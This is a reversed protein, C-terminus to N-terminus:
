GSGARVQRRPGDKQGRGDAYFPTPVQHRASGAAARGHRAAPDHRPNGRQGRAASPFPSVPRERCWLVPRWGSCGEGGPAAPPLRHPHPPPPQPNKQHTKKPETASQSLGHLLLTERQNKAALPPVPLRLATAIPRSSLPLTRGRGFSSPSNPAMTEHWQGGWGGWRERERIPAHLPAGGGARARPAASGPEM